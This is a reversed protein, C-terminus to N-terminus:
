VLDPGMAAMNSLSDAGFYCCKNLVKSPINM